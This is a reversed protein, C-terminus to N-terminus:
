GCGAETRTAWVLSDYDSHLPVLPGVAQYEFLGGLLGHTSAAILVTDPDTASRLAAALAPAQGFAAKDHATGNSSAGSLERLVVLSTAIGIRTALAISRGAELRKIRAILDLGVRVAREADDEHAQPYSFHITAGDDAFRAVSGGWRAAAQYCCAHCAAIVTSLEEPDLRTALERLGVFDCSVVTLHRREAEVRAATTAAAGSPSAAAHRARPQEEEVERVEGVFRIGKRSLTRILRQGEGDDGIASRAANIRTALTSESVIRGGWIADLLDDRSVVHGRNRILYELLDFVQPQVSVVTHGRRLERRGTDLVYNDFVFILRQGSLATKGQRGAVEPRAM